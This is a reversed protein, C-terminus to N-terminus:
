APDVSKSFVFMKVSELFRPGLLGVTEAQEQGLSCMELYRSEIKNGRM